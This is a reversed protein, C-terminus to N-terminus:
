PEVDSSPPTPAAATAAPAAPPPAPGAQAPAAPPAPAAEAGGADAPPAGTNFVLWQGDAWMTRPPGGARWPPGFLLM